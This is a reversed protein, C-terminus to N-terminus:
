RADDVAYYYYYYYYHRTNRPMQATHQRQLHLTDLLLRGLQYHRVAALLSTVDLLVLHLHHVGPAVQLDVELLALAAEGVGTVQVAEKAHDAVEDVPHVVHRSLHGRLLFGPIIAGGDDTVVVVRDM